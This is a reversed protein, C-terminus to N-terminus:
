AESSSNGASKKDEAIRKELYENQTIRGVMTVPFLQEIEVDFYRALKKKTYHKTQADFGSELYCLTAISVKAGAAVDIM